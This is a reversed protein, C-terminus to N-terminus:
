FYYIVVGFQLGFRSSSTAPKYYKKCCNLFYFCFFGGLERTCLCLNCHAPKAEIDVFLIKFYFLSKVYIINWKNNLIHGFLNFYTSVVLVHRSTVLVYVRLSHCLRFFFYFLRHFGCAGQKLFLVLCCLFAVRLLYHVVPQSTYAWRPGSYLKTNPFILCILSHSTIKLCFCQVNPLM